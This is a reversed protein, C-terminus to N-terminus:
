RDAFRAKPKGFRNGGPRSEGPRSFDKPAPRDGFSPRAPRDGFAPRAPRDGYPRSPRDAGFAPRASREGFSPRAPRDGFSPGESGFTRRPAGQYGGTRPRAGYGGSRQGGYSSGGERRAQAPESLESMNMKVNNAREMDAVARAQYHTALTVALGKSGNRGTRGIRHIYDDKDDPLDYNVVLSINPVDIGRAAVDTAILVRYLGSRFGDLAHKRERQSRDGHIEAASFGAEKVQYLIDAVSHKTRVFVLVPGEHAALLTTLIDMKKSPSVYCLEQTVLANSTGAKAIEIRAPNNTYGAVLRSVGPAMTASFMLTQRGIPALQMIKEIQPAFGMDLMRDAEDLVLVGALDLRLTRRELHDNLRGPTAIVIRPKAKLGQIQRFMPMGGILAITRMGPIHKAIRRVSEEVQLALERTPVVIVAIEQQGKNLREIIPLTFALTKGTGTQAIGILDKGTIAVPISQAQIPTPTVLQEKELISLVEPSLGTLAFGQVPTEDPM